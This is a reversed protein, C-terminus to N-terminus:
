LTNHKRKMWICRQIWECNRWISKGLQHRKAKASMVNTEHSTKTGPRARLQYRCNEYPHLLQSLLQICGLDRMLPIAFLCLHWMCDQVMCVSACWVCLCLAHVHGVHQKLVWRYLVCYVCNRRQLKRKNKLLAAIGINFKTLVQEKVVVCIHVM